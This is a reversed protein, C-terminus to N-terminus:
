KKFTIKWENNIKVLDFTQEDRSATKIIVQATDGDIEEKVVTYQGEGILDRIIDSYEVFLNSTDETTYSQLKGMDNSQVAGIFEETVASPSKVREASLKKVCGAFLVLFIVCVAVANLVKKTLVEM